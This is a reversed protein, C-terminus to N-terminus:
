EAEGAFVVEGGEERGLRVEGRVVGLEGLPGGEDEGVGLVVAEELEGERGGRVRGEEGVAAYVAAQRGGVDALHDVKHALVAPCLVGAAVLGPVSVDDVDVPLLGVLPRGQDLGVDLVGRLLAAHQGKVLQSIPLSRSACTRRTQHALNAQM